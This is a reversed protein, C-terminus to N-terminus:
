HGSKGRAVGAKEIWFRELTEARWCFCNDPVPRGLFLSLSLVRGPSLVISFNCENRFSCFPTPPPPPPELSKSLLEMRGVLLSKGSRKPSNTM